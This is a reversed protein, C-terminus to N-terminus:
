MDVIKILRNKFRLTSDRLSIKLVTCQHALKTSFADFSHNIRHESIDFWLEYSRVEDM